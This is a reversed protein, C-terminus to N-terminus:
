EEVVFQFLAASLVLFIADFAVIMWVWNMASSLPEGGLIAATAKVAALIVPVSVPIFLIPLMVERARTNVAIASFITGVAAFGITALLAVLALAPMFLPLNFLFFAAPFTIAEVVLMFILNATMKGFFIVERDVPCLMLGELCGKDKEQVLSRGFGLMGAFTIAVWLIGAAVLRIAESGPEFAFNFIILVLVAFVLSTTIFDKARMESLMDKWILVGVKDLYARM